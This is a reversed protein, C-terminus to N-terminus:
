PVARLVVYAPHSEALETCEACVLLRTWTDDDRGAHRIRLPRIGPNRCRQCVGLAAAERSHLPQMQAAPAQM